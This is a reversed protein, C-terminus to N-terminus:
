RSDVLPVTALRSILMAVLKSDLALSNILLDNVGLGIVAHLVLLPIRRARRLGIVAFLLGVVIIIILLPLLVAAIVAAWDLYVIMAGRDGPLAAPKALPEHATGLPGIDLLLALHDYEPAL